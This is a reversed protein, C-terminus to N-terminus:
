GVKGNRAGQRRAEAECNDGIRRGDCRSEDPSRPDLDQSDPPADIRMHARRQATAGDAIHAFDTGVQDNEASARDVGFRANRSEIGLIGFEFRGDRFTLEAIATATVFSLSPVVAGNAIMGVVATVCRTTSVPADFIARSRILASPTRM